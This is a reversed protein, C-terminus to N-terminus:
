FCKHVRDASSYENLASKFKSFAVDDVQIFYLKTAVARLPVKVDSFGRKDKLDYQSKTNPFNNVVM